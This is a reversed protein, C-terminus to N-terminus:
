TLHIPSYSILWHRSAPVYICVGLSGLIAVPTRVPKLLDPDRQSGMLPHHPHYHHQNHSPNSCQYCAYSIPHHLHVHQFPVPCPLCLQHQHLQHLHFPQPPHAHPQRCSPCVKPSQCRHHGSIASFSRACSLLISSFLARGDDADALLMGLEFTRSGLYRLFCHKLFPGM